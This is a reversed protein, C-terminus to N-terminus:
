VKRRLTIHVIEPPCLFRAPINSIGIGRSVYIRMEGAERGLIKSLRRGEFLGKILQKYEHIHPYVCGVIPLRIQGGHTHGSLMLDVGADAARGAINPAHALLLTFLDDPAGALAKKVDDFRFYPDDVGALVIKAGSREVLVHENVLVRLRDYTLDLRRAKGFAGKHETNGWVAYVGGEPRVRDLFERVLRAGRSNVAIDGTVVLIDAPNERVFTEMKREGAWWHSIHTDSLQLISFGDFEEPLRSFALELRTLKMATREYLTSYGALGAVAATVWGTM